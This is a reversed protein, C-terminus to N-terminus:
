KEMTAYYIGKTHQGYYMFWKGGIKILTPDCPPDPSYPANPIENVTFDFVPDQVFVGDNFMTHFVGKYSWFYLRVGDDWQILEPGDLLGEFNANRSDLAIGKKEFVLGDKSTAWLFLSTDSNPVQSPYKTNINGRYVMLYNYDQGEVSIITPAAVNELSLGLNNSADIRIGSEDEWSLGDDSIASKIAQANQFYMRYKGNPLKIVSPFTSWTRRIGDEATWKIGDTSIASYVQGQFDPIEPEAAFYLRYKGDGLYIVNADAYKGPVAIGGVNWESTSQNKAPIEKESPPPEVPNTDVDITKVAENSTTKKQPEPSAVTYSKDPQEQPGVCGSVFIFAFLVVALLVAYKRM